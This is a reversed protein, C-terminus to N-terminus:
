AISRLIAITERRTEAHAENFSVNFAQLRAEWEPGDVAGDLTQLENCADALRQAAATLKPNNGYVECLWLIHDGPHSASRDESTAWDHVRILNEMVHQMKIRRLDAQRAKSQITYRIAWGIGAIVVVLLTGAISLAGGVIAGQLQPDLSSFWEVPVFTQWM